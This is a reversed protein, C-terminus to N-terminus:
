QHLQGKLLARQMKHVHITRSIASIVDLGMGNHTVSARELLLVIETFARLIVYQHADSRQTVLSVVTAFVNTVHGSLAILMLGVRWITSWVAHALREKGVQNAHVLIRHQAFAMVALATVTQRARSDAGEFVSAVRVSTHGM